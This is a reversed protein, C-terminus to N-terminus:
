PRSVSLDASLSIDHKMAGDGAETENKLVVRVWRLLPFIQDDAAEYIKEKASGEAALHRLIELVALVTGFRKDKAPLHAFIRDPVALLVNSLDPVVPAITPALTPDMSAAALM